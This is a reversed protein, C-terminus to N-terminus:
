GGEENIDSKYGWGNLRQNIGGWKDDSKDGRENFM